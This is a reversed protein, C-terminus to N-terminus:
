VGRVFNLIYESGEYATYLEFEESESNLDYEDNLSREEARYQDAFIELLEECFDRNEKIDVAEKNEGGKDRVVKQLRFHFSDHGITNSSEEEYVEDNEYDVDYSETRVEKEELYLIYQLETTLFEETYSEEIRPM